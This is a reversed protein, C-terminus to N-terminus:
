NELFIYSVAVGAIVSHTTNVLSSTEFTTDKINSYRTFVGLWVNNKRWTSGIALRLGAYGSNTVFATRTSTSFENSVGYYYDAYKSSNYMLSASANFVISGGFVNIQPTAKYNVSLQSVWGADDIGKFDTAIAKRVSWDVFMHDASDHTGEFYYELSPGIEGVWDLDPMGIRAKNDKVPIAGAADIAIHWKNGTFLEGEFANRDIKFEDSKYYIYPVPFAYVSTEDSGIYDNLYTVGAGFGFTYKANTGLFSSSPKEAHATSLCCM